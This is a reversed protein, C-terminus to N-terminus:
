TYESEEARISKVMRRYSSGGVTLRGDERYGMKRYLAYARDNDEEVILALRSHGEAGGKEEFARMLSKGIGQGQFADNVAISDLYYEGPRTEKAITYDDRGTLARAHTVLPADLEDARGGDYAVVIGAIQGDRESVVVNEFSIRNGRQRFFGTLIRMAEERDNTGALSYAIDGVASFLLPIAEGADEPIAPRIM